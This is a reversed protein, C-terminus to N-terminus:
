QIQLIQIDITIDLIGAKSIIINAQLDTLEVFYFFDTESEM